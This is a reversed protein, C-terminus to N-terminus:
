FYNLLLQLQSPSAYFAESEEKSANMFFNADGNIVSYQCTTRLITDKITSVYDPTYLLSNNM